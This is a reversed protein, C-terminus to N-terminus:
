NKRKSNRKCDYDEEREKKNLEEIARNIQAVVGTDEFGGNIDAEIWELSDLLAERIIEKNM